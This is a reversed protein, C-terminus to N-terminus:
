VGCLRPTSSAAATGDSAGGPGGGIVCYDRNESLACAACLCAVLLVARALMGRSRREGGSGISIEKHFKRRGLGRNSKNGREFMAM